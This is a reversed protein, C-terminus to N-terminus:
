RQYNAIINRTKYLYDLIENIKICTNYENDKEKIIPPISMFTFLLLRENDKLPYNKEYYKFLDLFSSSRYSNKYFNLLDYIPSDVKGKNWSILYPKDGNIFHELKANGHIYVVRMNKNDKVLKYWKEINDKVYYISDFIININRALLYSSPSMYIEREIGEILNTYYSNLYTIRNLTDEYIGKIKDVDIDQYFTTKNHLLSIIHMLDLNKQEIPEDNDKIYPYVELKDTTEIPYPFYDFARSNLYDYTNIIDKNIKPKITIKDNVIKTKNKITIKEPVLDYKVLLDKIDNKM